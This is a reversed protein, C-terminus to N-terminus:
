KIKYGNNPHNEFLKDLLKLRKAANYAGGNNYRLDSRNKYNNIIEYLTEKTWYGSQKITRGYNPHNKFLEDLINLRIAANYADLKKRFELRNCNNAINQIKEKTWYGCPKQETTFGSNSHSEFLEDLIKLNNAANYAGGSNRSFESRTKYKKVENLLKEKTWKFCKGGLSGGKAINFLEWKNQKYLDIWYQEQKKADIPNLNKELIKYEPLYHFITQFYYDSLYCVRIKNNPYFLM